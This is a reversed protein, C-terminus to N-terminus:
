LPAGFIIGNQNTFSLLDGAQFTDPSIAVSAGSLLNSSVLSVSVGQNFAVASAGITYNTTNDSDDHCSMVRRVAGSRGSNRPQIPVTSQM